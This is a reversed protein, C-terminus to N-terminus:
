SKKNRRKVEIDYKNGHHDQVVFSHDSTWEIFKTEGSIFQKIDIAIIMELSEDSQMLKKAKDAIKAKQSPTLNTM